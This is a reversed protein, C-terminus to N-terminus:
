GPHDSGNELLAARDGASASIARWVAPGGVLWTVASGAVIPLFALVDSGPVPQGLGRNTWLWRDFRDAVSLWLSPVLTLWILAAVSVAWRLIGTRKGQAGIRQVGCSLWRWASGWMWAAGLAFWVLVGCVHLAPTIWFGEQNRAAACMATAALDLRSATWASFYRGVWGLAPALAALGISLALGRLAYRGLLRVGSALVSRAGSDSDGAGLSLIDAWHGWLSRFLLLFAGLAVAWPAWEGIWRSATAVVAVIESGPVLPQWAQALRELFGDNAAGTWADLPIGFPQAPSTASRHVVVHAHEFGQVTLALHPDGRSAFVSHLGRVIQLILWFGLGALVALVVSALAYGTTRVPRERSRRWRVLPVVLVLPAAAILALCLATTGETVQAAREEAQEMKRAVHHAELETLRELIAATVADNKPAGQLDPRSPTPVSVVSAVLAGAVLWRLGTLWSGGRRNAAPPAADGLVDDVCRM